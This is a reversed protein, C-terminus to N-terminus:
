EPWLELSCVVPLLGISSWFPLYKAFSYDYIILEQTVGGGGGIPTLESKHSM